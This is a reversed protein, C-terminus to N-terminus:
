GLSTRWARPGHDLPRRLSTARAVWSDVPAEQPTDEPLLAVAALIAAIEEETATGSIVRLVPTDSM